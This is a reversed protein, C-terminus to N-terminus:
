NDFVKVMFVYNQMRKIQQPWSLGALSSKSNNVALKTNNVSDAPINEIAKLLYKSKVAFAAGERQVARMSVIGIINGSADWIPGGSNGPNVPISIEYNLTDGHLGASSALYGRGCVLSDDPYGATYVSEGLDTKSHKFNYPLNSLRKFSPDDIKLIAIDYKPDTYIVKSTYEGAGNQVHVSDAGNVVHYNTVLYGDASIAFGTGTFNSQSSFRARPSNIDKIIQNTHSALQATVHQTKKIESRLYQTESKEAFYGSFFLTALVAFIAVSAAVSIKSHHHRWLQTIRNPKGAAEEILHEADMQQHIADMRHKLEQQEGFSKMLGTFKIHEDIRSNLEANDRRLQEFEAREAETLEGNLYRDTLEILLNNSM